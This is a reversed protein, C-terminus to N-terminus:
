QGPVPESVVEWSTGLPREVSHRGVGWLGRFCAQVTAPRGTYAAWPEAGVLPPVWCTRRGAHVKSESEGRLAPQEPCSGM